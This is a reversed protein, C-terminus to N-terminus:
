LKVASLYEYRLGSNRHLWRLLMASRAAPDIPDFDETNKKPIIYDYMPITNQTADMVKIAAFGSQQLISEATGSEAWPDPWPGYGDNLLAQIMFRPTNVTSPADNLTIDSGVFRGSPKLVRHVEELFTRRSAFHFMAEVCFVRDFSNDAFPLACADAEQWRITNQSKSRLRQCIDLQRPDINIGTLSMEAFQLDICEILGGLGCGIDLVTQGSRVAAMEIMVDDLRQQAIRFDDAEAPQGPEPKFDWHGFHACRGSYGSEFADILREFYVPVQLSM